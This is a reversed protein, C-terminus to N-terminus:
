AKMLGICISNIKHLGTSLFVKVSNPIYSAIFGLRIGGMKMGCIMEHM